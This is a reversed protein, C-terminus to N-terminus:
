PKEEAYRGLFLAQAVAFIFLLGTVGYFKFNVWANCSLNYVAVLNVVGLLAFFGFWAVNLRRWVKIPASMQQELMAQILPKGLFLPSLLFTISFAWYLITPKWQIFTPDRFYLTAGGFLSVLILSVWLMGHIKKRKILLWCVQLVTALIALGTALLIPDQTIPVDPSVTCNAGKQGGALYYASFFVIVPFLDFLFKM